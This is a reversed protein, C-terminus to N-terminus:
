PALSASGSPVVYGSIVAFVFGPSGQPFENPEATSLVMRVRSGPDAYLRTEWRQTNRSFPGLTPSDFTWLVTDSKIPLIGFAEQGNVSHTISVSVFSNSPTHNVVMAINEIVMTGESPAFFDVVAAQLAVSGDGFSSSESLSIPTRPFVDAQQVTIPDSASGVIITPVPNAIDNNVIVYKDPPEASATGIVLALIFTLIKTINM